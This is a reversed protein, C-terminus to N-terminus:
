NPIEFNSSVGGAAAGTAPSAPSGTVTVSKPSLTRNSFFVANPAELHTRLFVSNVSSSFASTAPWCCLLCAGASFCYHGTREPKPPDRDCGNHHPRDQCHSLILVILILRLPRPRRKGARHHRPDVRIGKRRGRKPLVRIWCRIWRSPLRLSRAGSRRRTRRRYVATQREVISGEGFHDVKQRPLKLDVINQIRADLAADDQVRVSFGLVDVGTRQELGNQADVSESHDLLPVQEANHGEGVNRM